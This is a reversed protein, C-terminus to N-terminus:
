IDRREEGASAAEMDALLRKVDEVSTVKGAVGGADEIKKLTVEQLRSLRGGPQKVEFACFRGGVCAIIDPIGATGYMGGHTKWAFCGPLDKLYRMIAAVIERELM